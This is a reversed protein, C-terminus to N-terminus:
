IREFLYNPNKSVLRYARNKMIEKMLRAVEWPSGDHSDDFLIFGGKELYESVNNFDRKAFEYSHDGDIYCFSIEGGLKIVRGFVDTAERSENWMLFFDDSFEEITYPLNFGSFMRVNRIYTERVFEKYSKRSISSAGLCSSESASEFIWKDCTIIKNVKRNRNLYYAIANTSLGCFSGIEVVPNSSPLNRIAYDFCYLNGRTLWGANASCLWNIYEDSIDIIDDKTPPVLRATALIKYFKRLM